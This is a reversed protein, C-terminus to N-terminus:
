DFSGLRKVVAEDSGPVALQVVTRAVREAASVPAVSVNDPFHLRLNVDHMIAGIFMRALGGPDCVRVRGLAMEAEFYATMADINMFPPAQENAGLLKAFDKQHLKGNAAIMQVCPMLDSVYAHMGVAIAVLHAEVSGEGVRTPISIFWECEDLQPLQLAQVFMKLKSGFRKYLTGESVGARKALDQTSVGPGVELFTARMSELMADSDFHQPRAM